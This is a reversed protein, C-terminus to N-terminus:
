FPLDDLGLPEDDLPLSGEDREKQKGTTTKRGDESKGSLMILQQVIIETVYRKSGDKTEYNRTQLRGEVFLKQGKKVYASVVDVLKGFVVLNHFEPIDKKEGDETKYTRNTAISFTAIQNGNEFQKIEPDKTLNGILEVRNLSSAM